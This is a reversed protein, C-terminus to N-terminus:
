LRQKRRSVGTILELFNQNTFGQTDCANRLGTKHVGNTRTELIKSWTLGMIKYKTLRLFKAGFTQKAKRFFDTIKM